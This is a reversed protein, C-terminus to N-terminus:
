EVVRRCVPASLSTTSVIGLSVCPKRSIREESTILPVFFFSFPLKHHLWLCQKQFPFRWELSCTKRINIVDRSIHCEFKLSNRFIVKGTAKFQQLAAHLLTNRSASSVKFCICCNHVIFNINWFNNWLGPFYHWVTYIKSDNPQWLTMLNISIFASFHWIKRDRKKSIWFFGNLLFIFRNSLYVNLIIYKYCIYRQLSHNSYTKTYNIANSRM